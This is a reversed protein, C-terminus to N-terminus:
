LSVGLYCTLHPLWANLLDLGGKFGVLFAKQDHAGFRVIDLSGHAFPGTVLNLMRDNSTARQIVFPGSQVGGGLWFRGRRVEAQFGALIARAPLGSGSSGVFVDLFGYTAWSGRQKGLFLATEAGRFSVGFLRLYSAGTQLKISFRSSGAENQEVALSPTTETAPEALMAQTQAQALRGFAILPLVLFSKM